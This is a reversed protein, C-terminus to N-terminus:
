HVVKLLVRTRAFIICLLINPLLHFNSCHFVRFDSPCLITLRFCQFKCLIHKLLGKLSKFWHLLWPKTSLPVIRLVKLCFPFISPYSVFALQHTFNQFYFSVIWSGLNMSSFDTIAVSLLMLSIIIRLFIAFSLALPSSFDFAKELIFCRPIMRQYVLFVFLFTRCNCGRLLFSCWFLLFWLLLAIIQLTWHRHPHNRHHLPSFLRIYSRISHIPSRSLIKM